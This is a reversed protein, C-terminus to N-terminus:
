NAFTWSVQDVRAEWPFNITFGTQRWGTRARVNGTGSQVFDAVGSSMDVSVITDTSFMEDTEDLVVFEGTNWNFAETTVTLGPTGAQSERDFALSSPSDSGLTGDFILWVPAEDNNITFGPNMVLRSDDSDVVDSFGGSATIGRFVTFTAPPITGGDVVKCGAITDFWIPNSGGAFDVNLALFVVQVTGAPAVGQAETLLWTDTPSTADIFPLSEVGPFDVNNQGQSISAPVLDVGNVDQFVIKLLGLSPGSPLANETLMYGSMFFEDGPAAPFTQRLESVGAALELEAAYMDSQAGVTPEGLKVNNAIVAGGEWGTFDGTEFDGNTLLDSGGVECATISDFWMPNSGGAFDVNLLLFVVETTGAPAVGAASSSIWTNVPSANNLFPQSDIGPNEPPSAVGSSVSAPELDVGNADRFVIKLLGLTAGAPLQNETLMYGDMKYEVGASAPFAQRIEAVNNPSNLEVAFSGGQAGAGPAGLGGDPDFWGSLDGNAFDGNSLEDADVNTPLMVAALLVLLPVISFKM